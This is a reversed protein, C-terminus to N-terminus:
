RVGKSSLIEVQINLPQKALQTPVVWIRINRKTLTNQLKHWTIMESEHERAPRAERAQRRGGM